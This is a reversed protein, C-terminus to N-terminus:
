STVAEPQREPGGNEAPPLARSGLPGLDCVTSGTTVRSLSHSSRRPRRTGLCLAEQFTERFRSSMLSYLVPNVASGLYFFVGSTIHLYQFALRLDGTWDSLFSWMLRDAHFPAWCIGFVVVLVVM